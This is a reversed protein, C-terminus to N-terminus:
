SNPIIAYQPKGPLRRRFGSSANRIDQDLPSNIWSDMWLGDHRLLYHGDPYLRSRKIFVITGERYILHKTKPRIFRRNNNVGLHELVASLEKLTFGSTQAKVKGFLEVVQAYSQNTIHAVCAIGCGMDDKQTVSQRMYANYFKSHKYCSGKEIQVEIFHNLGAPSEVM